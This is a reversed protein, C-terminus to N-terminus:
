PLALWLEIGASGGVWFTALHESSNEVRLDPRNISVHPQLVLRAAIFGERPWRLTARGLVAAWLLTAEPRARPYDRGSVE